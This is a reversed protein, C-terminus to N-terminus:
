VVDDRCCNYYILKDLSVHITVAFYCGQTFQWLWKRKSFTTVYSPLKKSPQMTDGIISVKCILDHPESAKQFVVLIYFKRLSAM